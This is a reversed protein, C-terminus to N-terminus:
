GSRGTKEVPIVGNFIESVLIHNRDWAEEDLTVEPMKIKEIDREDQIQIHFHRSVVSSADDMRVIDVKESLGFGTDRVVPGVTIVPDVVMDGQMHDWQYVERRLSLELNRCFQSECKLSLEDNVDMENWPVEFLWVMPRESELKNLKTWLKKREQQVTLAAIEAKRKGLERLVDKDYESVM